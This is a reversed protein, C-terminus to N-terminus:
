KSGGGWGGGGGFFFTTLTSGRQSFKRSITQLERDSYSLYHWTKLARSNISALIVDQSSNGIRSVLVNNASCIPRYCNNFHLM